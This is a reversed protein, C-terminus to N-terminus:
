YPCNVFNHSLVPSHILAAWAPIGEPQQAARPCYGRGQPLAMWPSTDGQIDM